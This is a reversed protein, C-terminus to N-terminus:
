VTTLRCWGVTIVSGGEMTVERETGVFERRVKAVTAGLRVSGRPLDKALQM